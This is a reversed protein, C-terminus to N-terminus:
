DLSSRKFAFWEIFFMIYKQANLIKRVQIL